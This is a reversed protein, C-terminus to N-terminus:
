KIYIKKGFFVSIVSRLLSLKQLSYRELTVDMSDTTVDWDYYAKLDARVQQFLTKPTLNAWENGDSSLLTNLRGKRKNRRKSTKSQLQVLLM